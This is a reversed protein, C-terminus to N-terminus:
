DLYGMLDAPNDINNSAIPRVGSMLMTEAVQLHSSAIPRNGFPKVTESIQLHSPEIPRVTALSLTQATEGNITNM